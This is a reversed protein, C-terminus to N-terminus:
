EVDKYDVDIVDSSFDETSTNTSKASSYQNKTKTNRNYTKLMFYKKVNYFLYIILMIPILWFLLQLALLAIVGIIVFSSLIYLWRKVENSM